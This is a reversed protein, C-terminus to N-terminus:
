SSTRLRETNDSCTRLTKKYGSHQSTKSTSTADRRQTRTDSLRKSSRKRERRRALSTDLTFSWQSEMQVMV